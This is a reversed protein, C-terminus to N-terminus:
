ERAPPFGTNGRKGPDGSSNVRAFAPASIVFISPNRCDRFKYGSNIFYQQLQQEVTRVLKSSIQQNPIKDSAFAVNTLYEGDFSLALNGIPSNTIYKIM